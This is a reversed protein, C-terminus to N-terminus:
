GSRSRKPWIARFIQSVLFVIFLLLAAGIAAIPVLHRHLFVSAVNRAVQTTSSYGPPIELVGVRDAYAEYDAQLNAFIDPRAEALDRTEGPDEAINFLHWQGDGYPPQNRAIKFDGKYLAANGSVEMGIPTEPGYITDAEGSVLPMLSRGDISVSNAPAPGAQALDLITPAIDTVLTMADLRQGAEIGPGAMILPVRLGGEAAYFKFLASPTSAASAYEPGIFVYSGKEGIDELGTRYGTAALWWSLPPVGPTSPESGNDSTVVFVTDELLGEEALHDIFRGIHHDMAELMGANVAMRAAFLDKEDESLGDWARLREHFDPMAADSSVLGLTRARDWRKAQMAAWGDTYTDRYKATFEAPAQVPIHVAQFGLFALFPDDEPTTQLYEITKDVIFASSYFDEPLDAAEGDEFWPADAYYPFYSRDEWNDAGSADLAFSRDFGHDNPLDGPGSGMHWKGAMMTRYGLPKLRDAVTLVGPELHMTYGPKGIHEPPLVEPITAVGTRHNDVGTLLMARSPACLPSSRYQTFLAGRAALADIHPTRAEGGYAGLDMLAADDILIIVFNPQAQAASGFACLLVALIWGCM